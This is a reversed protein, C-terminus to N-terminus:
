HTPRWLRSDLNVREVGGDKFGLVHIKGDEEGIVHAAQWSKTKSCFLEIDDGTIDGPLELYVKKKEVETEDNQKADAAWNEEPNIQAHFSKLNDAFSASELDIVTSCASIRDFADFSGTGENLEVADIMRVQRPSLMGPKRSPGCPAQPSGIENCAHILYEVAAEQNPDSVFCNRIEMDDIDFWGEFDAVGKQECAIRDTTSCLDDDSDCLEKVEALLTKMTEKVLKQAAPRSAALRCTGSVLEMLQGPFSSADCQKVRNKKESPSQSTEDRARKRHAHM